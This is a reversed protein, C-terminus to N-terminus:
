LRRFHIAVYPYRCARRVHTGCLVNAIGSARPLDNAQAIWLASTEAKFSLAIGSKDLASACARAPSCFIILHDYLRTACRLDRLFLRFNSFKRTELKRPEARAAPLERLFNESDNKLQVDSSNSGFGSVNHGRGTWWM